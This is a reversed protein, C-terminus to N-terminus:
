DNFFLERRNTTAYMFRLETRLVTNLGVDSGQQVLGFWREVSSAIAVNQGVGQLEGHGFLCKDAWKQAQAEVTSDWAQRSKISDDHKLALLV